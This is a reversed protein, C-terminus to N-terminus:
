RVDVYGRQQLTARVRAASRLRAVQHDRDAGEADDRDRRLQIRGVARAAARRAAEALAVPHGARSGAAARPARGHRGAHAGRRRRERARKGDGGSGQARGDAALRPGSQAPLQHGPAVRHDAALDQLERRRPLTSGGSRWLFADQAADEADAHSGLAALAARYVATRHREVLRWLRCPGGAPGARGPRRRECLSYVCGPRRRNPDRIESPPHRFKPNQIASPLRINSADCFDSVLHPDRIAIWLDSFHLDSIALRQGGQHDSGHAGSLERPRAPRRRHSPIGDAPRPRRVVKRLHPIRCGRAEARPREPPWGDDAPPSEPDNFTLRENVALASVIGLRLREHILRDLELPSQKKRKLRLGRSESKVSGADSKLAMFFIAM